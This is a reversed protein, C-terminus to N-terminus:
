NEVDAAVSAVPHDGQLVRTIGNLDNGSLGIDELDPLAM